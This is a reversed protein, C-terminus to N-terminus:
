RGPGPASPLQGRERLYDLAAAVTLEAAPWLQRDVEAYVQAVIQGPTRAGEAVAQRIQELRAARHERYYGIWGPVDAVDPGHGPRILRADLGALRQLSRLYDVLRGDPHAVVTTGRGLVTDGTYLCGEAEDLFTVSDATHGPTALVRLTLGDVAVVDGEGVRTPPVGSLATLTGLGEAHDLHHHTVVVAALERGGATAAALVRRLHGIEDPGPDLVVSRGEPAGLVWTNTGELTMPGPNGALVRTATM